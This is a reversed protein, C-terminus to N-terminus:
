WKSDNLKSKWTINSYMKSISSLILLKFRESCPIERFKRINKEPEESCAQCNKLIKEFTNQYWDWWHQLCLYFDGRQWASKAHQQISQVWRNNGIQTICILSHSWPYWLVGSPCHNAVWFCSLTSLLIECGSKEVLGLIRLFQLVFLSIEFCQAM